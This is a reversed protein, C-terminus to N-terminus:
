SVLSTLWAWVSTVVWWVILLLLIKPVLNWGLISTMSVESTCHPCRTAFASIEEQCHPCEM